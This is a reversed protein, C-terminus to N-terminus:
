GRRRSSRTAEIALMALLTGAAAFFLIQIVTSPGTDLPGLSPSNPTGSHDPPPSDQAAHTSRDGPAQRKGDLGLLMRAAEAVQEAVPLSIAGELSSLLTTVLGGYPGLAIAPWVYFFWRSAV